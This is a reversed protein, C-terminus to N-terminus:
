EALLERAAALEAARGDLDGNLKRRRLETLIEGVRPSEALGLAALDDGDVELQVKRLREFWTHLAPLDGLALLYLPTDPGSREIADAIEAPASVVALRERLRPAEAHATEVGTAVRREVQLEDLRGPPADISLLGLHIPTLGIGYRANLERLRALVDGRVPFRLDLAEDVRLEHLRALVAAADPEAFVAALEERIRAGSLRAIGDAALLALTETKPDMRFGLRVEYRAGRFIRTPDDVFSREHLVRVLHEQLHRLGRFPDVLEGGPLSIAMANITFDRRALDQVITDAATVDPLAAPAAYRETRTTAVDVHAADDYHVTATGFRGHTTVRGGLRVALARAFTEADGVVALDFDFTPTRRLLIDRVTGGVLYAPGPLAALVPAFGDLETLEHALLM